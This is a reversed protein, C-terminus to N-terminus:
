RRGIIRRSASAKAEREDAKEVQCTSRGNSVDAAHGSIAGRDAVVM